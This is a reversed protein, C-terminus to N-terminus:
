SRATDILNPEFAVIALATLAEWRGFMEWAACFVLVALLLAMLSAALRASIVVSDVGNEVLFTSGYSFADFKSTLKSGCQWPPEFTPPFQATGHRAALLPPHEPNIRFRRM